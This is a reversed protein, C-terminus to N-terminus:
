RHIAAEHSSLRKSPVHQMQTALADYAMQVSTPLAGDGTERLHQTVIDALGRIFVLSGNLSEARHVKM